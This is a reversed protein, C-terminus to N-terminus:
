QDSQSVLHELSVSCRTTDKQEKEVKLGVGTWNQREICHRLLNSEVGLTASPVREVTRSNDSRILFSTHESTGTPRMNTFKPIFNASIAHLSGAVVAATTSGFICIFSTNSNLCDSDSM